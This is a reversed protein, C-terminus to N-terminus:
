ASHHVPCVSVTPHEHSDGGGGGIVPCGCSYKDEASFVDPEYLDKLRQYHSLLVEYAAAVRTNYKAAKELDRRSPCAQRMTGLPLSDILPVGYMPGVENTVCM